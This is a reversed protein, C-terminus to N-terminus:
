ESLPMLRAKVYLREWYTGPPVCTVLTIYSDDYIQELASLDSPKTVVMDIVVYRYTMGDYSIFIEDGKQHEKMPKLTPLLSFITKYNGPDFFHPLTSHGFIVTNGYEGPMSTGGYHILSKELSDGAVIVLADKIKLKPISIFYTAAENIHEQPKTPYWINPNTYDISTNGKAKVGVANDLLPASFDNGSVPSVTQAYLESKLFVFSIIPWISWILIATGISMMVYSLGKSKKKIRVPKPYAKVYEYLPM